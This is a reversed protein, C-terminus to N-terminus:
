LEVIMLDCDRGGRGKMLEVFACSARSEEECGRLCPGRRVWPHYSDDVSWCSYLAGCGVLVCSREAGTM